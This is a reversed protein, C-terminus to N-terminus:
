IPREDLAARLDRAIDPPAKAAIAIAFRLSAFRDM